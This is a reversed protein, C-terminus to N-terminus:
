MAKQAVVKLITVRLQGENTVLPLHNKLKYSLIESM